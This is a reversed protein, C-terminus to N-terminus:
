ISFIIEGLKLGWLVLIAILLFIFVYGWFWPGDYIDTSHGTQNFVIERHERERELKYMSEMRHRLASNETEARELRWLTKFYLETYKDQRQSTTLQKEALWGGFDTAQHLTQINQQEKKYEEWLKKAVAYQTKM